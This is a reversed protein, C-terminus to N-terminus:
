TSEIGPTNDVPKPTTPTSLNKPDAGPKFADPLVITFDYGRKWVGPGSEIRIGNPLTQVYKQTM